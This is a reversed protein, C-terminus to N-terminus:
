EESQIETTTFIVKATTAGLIIRPGIVINIISFLLKSKKHRLSLHMTIEACFTKLSQLSHNVIIICILPIGENDNYCSTFCCVRLNM